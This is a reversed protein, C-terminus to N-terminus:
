KPPAFQNIQQTLWSSTSNMQGILTEMSQFSTTLRAREQDMQRNLDDIRGALSDYVGQAADVSNQILGTLPNTFTDLLGNFMAGVGMSVSVNGINGTASNAYMLVLGDVNGATGTLVQGSGTAAQGGITGAVDMGTYTQNVIGLNNATQSITMSSSSGYANNQLQLFNGSAAASIDMAYRGQTLVAETGFALTGGGQNNATLNFSLSSDGSTNDTITVKGAADVSATVTQDFAVQIASLLSGVTDTAPNLVSFTYNVAAGSRKTGSITITDNAAVGLGLASLTTASTAPTGGATLATNMQRQETYVQSFETNLATVISSLSQGNTLNVVAQRSAADTITVAEAGALGALLSTTGTVSAKTAAQTINVAYSGSVTGTGYTIYSLATNSSTASAAFVDRVATPDTALWNNLTTSDINLHGSSDPSVGALVLNNRDSALGPITQLVSSSLESQITRVISESALIGSTKTKPDFKMQNNIYDMIKNYADVFKQINAKIGAQDITTSVTVTSAPDAKLLDLTFGSLADTITNSGRTVAINDITLSADAAAQLSQRANAQAVAGMQLNALAGAADLAAGSLQVQGNTLGTNDATMVLRYDSTGVKLISATVGTANAGTNLLNIKDRIDRLSDTSTVNVTQAASAKGQITFSSATYGLAVTDSSVVAGTSDKVASSSGLKEAAALLSVTITHTGITATPDPTASLLSSAATTTNSSLTSQNLLFRSSDALDIGISRLSSIAGGLDNIASQKDLQQQQRNQLLAVKKGEISMLKDVIGNWDIGSSLGSINSLGPM